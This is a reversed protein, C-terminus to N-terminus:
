YIIELGWVFLGLLTVIMLVQLTGRLVPCKIYDTFITWIGIWAHLLLSLLVLVSAIRMWANNFLSQWAHYTLHPHAIIYVLLFITYCGLIVASVRQLLWDRLGSSTLGTANTVM